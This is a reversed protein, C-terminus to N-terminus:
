GELITTGGASLAVEGSGATTHVAWDGRACLCRAPSRHFRKGCVGWDRAVESVMRGDAIAALVANYRQEDREDGEHAPTDRLYRLLQLPDASPTYRLLRLCKTALRGFKCV